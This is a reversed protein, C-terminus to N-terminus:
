PETEKVHAARLRELEEREVVAYGTPVVGRARHARVTVLGRDRLRCVCHLLSAPNVGTEAQIERLSAPYGNAMYLRRAAALIEDDDWKRPRSM